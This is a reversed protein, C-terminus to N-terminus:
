PAKPGGGLASRLYSGDSRFQSKEVGLLSAAPSALTMPQYRGLDRGIQIMVWDANNRQFRVAINFGSDYREDSETTKLFETAEPRAALNKQRLESSSLLIEKKSSDGRIHSFLFLRPSIGYREIGKEHANAASLYASQILTYVDGVTAPKKAAMQKDMSDWFVDMFQGYVAGRGPRQQPDVLSRRETSQKWCQLLAGNKGQAAPVCYDESPGAFAKPAAVVACLSAFAARRTIKTM